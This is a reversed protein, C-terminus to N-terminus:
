AVLWYPRVIRETVTVTCQADLTVADRRTSPREKLLLAFFNQTINWCRSAVQIGLWDFHEARSCFAHEGVSGDRTRDGPKHFPALPNTSSAEGKWLSLVPLIYFPCFLYGANAAQHKIPLASPTTTDSTEM